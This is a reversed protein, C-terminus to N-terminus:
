INNKSLFYNEQMYKNNQLDNTLKNQIEEQCKRIEEASIM